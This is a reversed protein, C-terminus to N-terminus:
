RPKPRGLMDIRIAGERFVVLGDENWGVVTSPIQGPTEGGDVVVDVEPLAAAADAANLADAEGSRNASTTALPKGFLRIIGRAVDHDPVRYGFGDVVLTLAGPWHMLAMQRLEPQEIGVQEPDAMLRAIPKDPKRGKIDYIRRMASENDPDAALGYVTDTPFVVLGGDRLVRAAREFANPDIASIIEPMHPGM